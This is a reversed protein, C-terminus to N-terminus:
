HTGTPAPNCAAATPPGTFSYSSTTPDTRLTSLFNASPGALCTQAAPVVPDFSSTSTNYHQTFGYTTGGLILDPVGNKICAVCTEAMWSLDTTGLVARDRYPRDYISESTSIKEGADVYGAPIQHENRGSRYVDGYFPTSSGGNDVYSNGRGAAPNTTTLIQIMRMDDCHCLGSAPQGGSAIFHLEAGVGTARASGAAVIVGRSEHMFVPMAHLTGLQHGCCTIPCSVAPRRQATTLPGMANADVVSITPARQAVDSPSGSASTQQVVHTLEHALLHRGADSGPAYEGAGFVIDAGVTYARAQIPKASEAAESDTHVRVSGFDHGFRSEMFSRDAHDLPQGPTALAKYVAPPAEFSDDAASASSEKRLLQKAQCSTCSGACECAQEKEPMRMVQEAVRDAETEHADGRAGVYLKAQLGVPAQTVVSGAGFNRAFPDDAKGKSAQTRPAFTRMISVICSPRRPRLSFVTATASLSALTQFEGRAARPLSARSM